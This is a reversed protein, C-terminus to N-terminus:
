PHVEKPQTEANRIDERIGRSRHHGFFGPLDFKFGSGYTVSNWPWRLECQACEFNAQGMDERHWLQFHRTQGYGRSRDPWIRCPWSADFGTGTSSTGSLNVFTGTADFQGLSDMVTGVVNYRSLIAGRRHGPM